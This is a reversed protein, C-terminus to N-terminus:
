APELGQILLIEEVPDATVARRLLHGVEGKDTAQIVEPETVRACRAAAAAHAGADRHEERRLHEELVAARDEPLHGGAHSVDDERGEKFREAAAADAELEEVADVAEVERGIARPDLRDRDATLHM